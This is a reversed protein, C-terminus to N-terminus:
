KRSSGKYSHLHNGTCLSLTRTLNNEDRTHVDGYRGRVQPIPANCIGLVPTMYWRDLTVHWIGTYISLVPTFVSYRHWLDYILHLMGLTPIFVSYRHLYRTGTDYIMYWTYCALHRHLIDRTLYLMDLTPYIGHVVDYILDCLMIDHVLIVTVLGLCALIDVILEM